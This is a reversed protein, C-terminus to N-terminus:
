YLRKSITQYSDTGLPKKEAKSTFRRRKMEKGSKNGRAGALREQTESSPLGDIQMVGRVDGCGIM